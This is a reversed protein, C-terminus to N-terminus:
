GAYCCLMALYQLMVLASTGERPLANAEVPSTCKQHCVDHSTRYILGILVLTFNLLAIHPMVAASCLLWRELRMM